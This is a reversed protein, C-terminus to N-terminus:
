EAHRTSDRRVLHFANCSVYEEEGADAAVDAIGLFLRQQEDEDSDWEAIWRDLNKLQPRLSEYLGNARVVSLIALFVHYRTDNDPQMVNFITTLISLAMGPGNVPSSTIPSSLIQCVKPLFRNFNPSQRLLHILLNYSPIFETATMNTNAVAPLWRFSLFLPRTLGKEPASNLVISATVLRKLAEDKQNQELLRMVESHVSSADESQTKKVNDLYQALEEALEEFPGEILLTNTPEPM